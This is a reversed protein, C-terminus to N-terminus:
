TRRRPNMMAPTPNMMAPTPNMMAPTPSMIVPMSSTMAPMPNMMPEMAPMGSAMSLLNKKELTEISISVNRRIRRAIMRRRDREQQSRM